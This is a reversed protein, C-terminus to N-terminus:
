EDKREPPGPLFADPGLAGGPIGTDNMPNLPDDGDPDAGDEFLRMWSDEADSPPIIDTREPIGTEPNLRVRLVADGLRLVSNSLALAEKKPRVGDVDVYARRVPRIMLGKGPVLRYLAHRRKLNKKRVAIDCAGSSGIMGEQYVPWSRGSMEDRIEGICGTEPRDRLERVFARHDKQLWLYARFVILAGLLIFVYRMLLATIEYAEGSM